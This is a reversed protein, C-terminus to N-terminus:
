ITIATGDSARVMMGLKMASLEAETIEATVPTGGNVSVGLEVNGSPMKTFTTRIAVTTGATYSGLSKWDFSTVQNGYDEIILNGNGDQRIRLGYWSGDKYTNAGFGWYTLTTNERYTLEGSIAVNEWSTIPINSSWPTNNGDTATQDELGWDRFTLETYETDESAFANLPVASLSNLLLLCSLVVSIIRKMGRGEM